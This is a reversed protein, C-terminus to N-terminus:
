DQLDEVNQGIPHTGLSVRWSTPPSPSSFRDQIDDDPNFWPLLPPLLLIKFLHNKKRRHPQTAFVFGMEPHYGSRFRAHIIM